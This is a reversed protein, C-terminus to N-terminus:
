KIIPKNQYEKTILDPKNTILSYIKTTKYELDLTAIKLPERKIIPINIQKKIKNLYQKGKKNLGLIRLYYDSQTDKKIDLLIHLLMRNIRNYTYRKTKINNVLDTWTNSTNIYKIIRAEIGEDVGLYDKLINQNNIITYKLFPFADNLSVKNLSAIENNPIYPKIDKNNLYLERILTANIINQDIEKSHYDNTRKILLPEVLYNNRKIEKLYALALLENPKEIKINTLQYLAKATATPYNEGNNLYEKVLENFRPNNLETDVLTNLNDLNEYESGFALTDIKLENLLKLAGKAFIEAAQTAYFTPLEIVLDIHNNLAIETKQWKDIISIDGRETFYTTTIIIILSDPYIEKIKNIQYLHGKHFPNYETIIGIIKM